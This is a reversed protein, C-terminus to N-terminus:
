RCPTPSGALVTQTANATASATDTITLTVQYSGGTTYSHAAVAGPQPGVVTGDGFAFTYSVIGVPDTSASGNATVSLPAAGASPTVTLTAKPAAAPAPKFVAVIGGFYSGTAVKMTMSQGAASTSLADELGAAFTWPTAAQSRFTFGIGASLPTSTSGPDPNGGIGIVLEGAGGIAATPGAAPSGSSARTAFQDLAPGSAFVGSYEAIVFAAQTGAFTVTDVGAASNGHYYLEVHGNGYRVSSVRTWAGASKNSSSGVVPTSGCDRFWMKSPM